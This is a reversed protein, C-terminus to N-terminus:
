RLIDLLEQSYTVCFEQGAKFIGNVTDVNAKEREEEIKIFLAATEDHAQYNCALRSLTVADRRTQKVRLNALRIDDLREPLDHHKQKMIEFEKSCSHDNWHKSLCLWGLDDDM